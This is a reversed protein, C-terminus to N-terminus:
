GGNAAATRGSLRTEISRRVRGPLIRAQRTAVGTLVAASCLGKEVVGLGPSQRVSRLYEVLLRQRGTLRSRAKPDFWRLIDKNSKNALRSMQPHLRRQFQPEGDLQVIHGLLGIELLLVYDSSIFSGILRTKALAARDFLGFVAFVMSLGQMIEFARLTKNAYTTRLNSVDPGIVNGAEDIVEARPYVLVPPEDSAARPADFAELCVSLFRPKCLDDHAAWKFYDASSKEFVFNYNPAAGLNETQRFYRIRKDRAAYDQCIEATADTSANDSIILEFDGMDQALLSDIARALYKEGNFVPLGLAVRPRASNLAPAALDDPTARTQTTDNM